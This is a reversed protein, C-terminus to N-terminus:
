DAPTNLSQSLDYKMTILTGEKNELTFGIGLDEMRKKMNRLGNGFARPKSLDIGKGNDHITFIMKNEEQTLTLMVKAAGSHKVINHLAEKVVLFVNRRIEGSVVLDPITKPLKIECVINNDECYGIAYSRIYAAMNSFSDNSSSMSWIIANMKTLLDNASNSIKEVEPIKTDGMKNLAIESYLRITTMGSGLDDHMDASIRNRENQRANILELQKEFEKKEMEMKMVQREQIKEIFDQRGKYTLGMIYFIVSAIIGLCFYFSASTLLGTTKGSILLIIFSLIYFVIQIATGAVLYNVLKNKQKLAVIIYIIAAALMFVKMVNELIEQPTFTNTFFHLYTYVAMLVVITLKEFKLFKNLWANKIGTELFIIVFQIYAITAAVLILLDLWASFFGGFWGSSRVLFANLFILLFMLLSYLFNYFFEARRSIITNVLTFMVMLLLMGSVLKMGNNTDNYPADLNYKYTKLYDNNVMTARVRNYKLKFMKLKIFYTCTEAPLLRIPIFGSSADNFVLSLKGTKNKKYVEIKNYLYGPYFWDNTTKDASNTVVFSLWLPATVLKNPISNREKFSTLPSFQQTEINAISANLSSDVFYFTKAEIKEMEYVCGADCAVTDGAVQAAGTAVAFIFCLSFFINKM